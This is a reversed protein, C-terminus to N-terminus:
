EFCFVGKLPRFGFEEALDKVTILKSEFCFVGKLPRFREDSFKKWVRKHFEFCFVGKLPRFGYIRCAKHLRM